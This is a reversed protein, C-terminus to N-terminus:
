QGSRIKGYLYSPYWEWKGELRRGFNKAVAVLDQIDVITDFNMDGPSLNITGFYYSKGAELYIPPISISARGWDSFIMTLSRELIIPASLKVSWRLRGRKEDYISVRAPLDMYGWEKTEPVKYYLHLHPPSWIPGRIPVQLDIYGWITATQEGESAQTELVGESGSIRGLFLGSAFLIICLLLLKKHKQREM